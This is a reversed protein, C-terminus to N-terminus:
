KHRIAFYKWIIIALSVPTYLLLALIILMGQDSIGVVNAPHRTSAFLVIIIVPAVLWFTFRGWTRFVKDHMKYTVLSFFLIPIFIMIPALFPLLAQDFQQCIASSYCNPFIRQFFLAYFFTAIVYTLSFCFVNKKTVWRDFIEDFEKM